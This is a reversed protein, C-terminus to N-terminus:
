GAKAAAKRGARQSRIGEHFRQEAMKRARELEEPEDLSRHGNIFPDDFGYLMLSNALSRAHSPDVNHQTSLGALLPAWPFPVARLLLIMARRADVPIKEWGHRHRQWNVLPPLYSKSPM